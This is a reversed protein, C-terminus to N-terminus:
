FADPFLFEATIRRFESGKDKSVSVKYDYKVDMDSPFPINKQLFDRVGAARLLALQPNTTIGSKTNVSLPTLVGDVTIPEDEFDGYSGDYPIGRLIPTADATGSLTVRVKKGPKLYQMMEGEFAEKVIKLMSSAAGSESVHYKGPAFDEVASFEPEVQYSVKMIYNLIKNGDADYDPKVESDIAIHTHDSIVNNHKAEEVVKQKLEQLAIEEMQQQRLIDLSVFDADSTMMEMPRREINDYIYTKNDNKNIFKAFILEFSDDPLLGYQAEEVSIDAGSTFAGLDSEPVPLMITPLNSFEVALMGSARDYNGLSIESMALMDGALQTSIEDEYLRRQAARTQDNVRNQYEEMSEGPQMKLWENMRTDVTESVLRSYYPELDHMRRAKLASSTNYALLTNHNADNLFVVDALGGEENSYTRRDSTRVLNIVEIDNPDTAVAIYKGNDNFDCALGDGLDDIMTRVDFTRTDYISLLGDSTLLAMLESNPSFAIDNVNVEADIRKRIRKGEFNLVVVDKGKVCVLYYGNPSMYLKEPAIGIGDIRGELKFKKTAFLFIGRDTALIIQRADPTYAVASPNGFKGIDFKHQKYNTEGTSFVTAKKQGKKLNKEIIIFTNGAPSVEFDVINNKKGVNTLEDGRMTTVGMLGSAFSTTSYPRIVVPTEKRPFSYEDRLTTESQAVALLSGAMFSMAAFTRFSFPNFNM